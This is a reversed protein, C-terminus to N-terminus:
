RLLQGYGPISIKMGLTRIVWWLSAATSSVVPRDVDKELEEVCAVSRWRGQILVADVKPHERYLARAVNYSAYDPLKVQDVPRSVQLGRIGLVQFGASEYYRRVADNISEKYATAIVVTKARLRRLAEASAGMATIVPLGVRASLGAVIEQEERYGRQTGLTIGGLLVVDCEEARFIELGTELAAVAKDFEEPTHARVNLGTAVITFGKPLILNWDSPTEFVSPSLYGIRAKWGSM